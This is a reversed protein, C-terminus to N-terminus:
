GDAIRAKIVLVKPPGDSAFKAHVRVPEAARVIKMYAGFM